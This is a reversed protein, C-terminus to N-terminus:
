VVLKSMAGETATTAQEQAAKAALRAKKAECNRASQRKLEDIEEESMQRWPKRRARPECIDYHWMPPSNVGLIEQIEKFMKDQDEPYLRDITEDWLDINSYVGLVLEYDPSLPFRLKLKYDVEKSLHKTARRWCTLFSYKLPNEQLEAENFFGLKEAYNTLEVTSLGIGKYAFYPHELLVPNCNHPLNPSPKFERL